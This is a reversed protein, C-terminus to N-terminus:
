QNQLIPSNSSSIDQTDINEFAQRLNDMENNIGAGPANDGQPIAMSPVKIGELSKSLNAINKKTLWIEFAGLCVVVIAVVAFFIIKKKNSDLAQLKKVTNSIKEYFGM